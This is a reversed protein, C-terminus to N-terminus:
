TKSWVQYLALNREKGDSLFTEDVRFGSKAALQSLEPESFHHAYRLGSGGSRWDLLYDGADVEAASLNVQEWPQLRAVLKPSNLFQWESHIFKGGPALLAGAKQLINLRLEVSPIHHLAAFATILTFHPTSLPFHFTTLDAAQFHVPFAGPQSEADKLLPLSFDLGLYAGHFGSQALTRALQGNGCGLDLIREDGRLQDVIKRVGPQIRGRTASFNEGFDAYFRRNLEVLQAAIEPRM